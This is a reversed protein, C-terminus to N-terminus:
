KLVCTDRYDDFAPVPGQEVGVVGMIGHMGKEPDGVNAGEGGEPDCEFDITTSYLQTSDYLCQDGM